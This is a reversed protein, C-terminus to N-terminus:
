FGEASHFYIVPTEMKVTLGTVPRKGFGKMAMSGQQIPWLRGYLRLLEKATLFSQPQGSELGFHSRVFAPLTEEERQLGSFLVGDSGSVTTFTGWEHLEYSFGTGLSLLFLGGLHISTKM